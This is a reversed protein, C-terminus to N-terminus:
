RFISHITHWEFAPHGNNPRHQRTKAFVMYSMYTIYIYVYIVYYLWRYFYATHSFTNACLQCEAKDRSDSKYDILTYLIVAKSCLGLQDQQRRVSNITHLRVCNHSGCGTWWDKFLFLIGLRAFGLRAAACAWISMM